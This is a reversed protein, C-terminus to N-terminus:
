PDPPWPGLKTRSPAESSGRQPGPLTDPQGWSGRSQGCVVDQRLQQGAADLRQDLLDVPAEGGAQHTGTPGAALPGSGSTQPCIVPLAAQVTRLPEAPRNGGTWSQAWTLGSPAATLGRGLFTPWTVPAAARPGWLQAPFGGVARGKWSSTESAPRTSRLSSAERRQESPPCYTGGPGGEGEGAQEETLQRVPCRRLPYTPYPCSSGGGLVLM